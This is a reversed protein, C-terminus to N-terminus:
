FNIKVCKIVHSTKGQMVDDGRGKVVKHLDGSPIKVQFSMKRLKSLINWNSVQYLWLGRMTFYVTSDLNMWGTLM